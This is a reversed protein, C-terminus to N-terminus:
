KTIELIWDGITKLAIPAITEDITNYETPSGTKATQFLHNLGKLEVTKFNKNGGKILAAKIAELDEKPPVQLDKEGNIALVPCNVKELTPRLDYKLFHKFWPSEVRKLMQLATNEDGAKKKDEESLSNYYNTFIDVIENHAKLSDPENKLIEYIKKNVKESKEINENREGMAKSILASQKLLIQDGPLGPGAM